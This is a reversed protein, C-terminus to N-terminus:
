IAESERETRKYTRGVHTREDSIVTQDRFAKREESYKNGRNDPTHLEADEVQEQRINVNNHSGSKGM